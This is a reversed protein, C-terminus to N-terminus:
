SFSHFWQFTYPVLPLLFLTPTYMCVYVGVNNRKGLNIQKIKNYTYTQIQKKYKQCYINKKEIINQEWIFKVPIKKQLFTSDNTILNLGHDALGRSRYKDYAILQKTQAQKILMTTVSDLRHQLQLAVELRNATISLLKSEPKSPNLFYIFDNHNHDLKYEKQSQQYNIFITFYISPFYVNPVVKYSQWCFFKLDNM